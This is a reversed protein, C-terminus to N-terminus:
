TALDHVAMINVQLIPLYENARQTVCVHKLLSVMVPESLPKNGSHRCAMIQVLASINNM